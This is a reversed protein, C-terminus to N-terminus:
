FFWNKMEVKVTDCSVGLSPHVKQILTELSEIMFMFSICRNQKKRSNGLYLHIFICYPQQLM